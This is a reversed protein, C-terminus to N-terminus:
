KPHGPEPLFALTRLDYPRLTLSVKLNEGAETAPLSRCTNTDFVETVGDHPPRIALTM